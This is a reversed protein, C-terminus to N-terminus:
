MICFFDLWTWDKKAWELKKNAKKDANQANFLYHPLRGAAGM